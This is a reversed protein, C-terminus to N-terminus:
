DYTEDCRIIEPYGTDFDKKITTITEPLASGLTIIRGNRLFLTVEAKHTPMAPERENRPKGPHENWFTFCVATIDKWDYNITRRCMSSNVHLEDNNYYFDVKCTGMWVPRVHATAFHPRPLPADSTRQAAPSAPPVAPAGHQKAQLMATIVSDPVGADKLRVLATASTDFSGDSISIKQIIVDASLGARHLAIVDDNTLTEASAHSAAFLLLLM